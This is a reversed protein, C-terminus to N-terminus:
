FEPLLSGPTNLHAALREAVHRFFDFLGPLMREEFSGGTRLVIKGEGAWGWSIFGHPHDTRCVSIEYHEPGGHIVAHWQPPDAKFDVHPHKEARQRDRRDDIAKQLEGATM